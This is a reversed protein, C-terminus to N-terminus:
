DKKKDDKKKKEDKVKFDADITKGDDSPHGSWTEEEKQDSATTQQQQQYQQAAQQYITASAKQLIKTLDNTKDKIKKTDDGTLAEQLEKLAKEVAEKDEKSFKDKLEKLQTFLRRDMISSIFDNTTKREVCVRDSLIFDGCLLMKNQLDIDYQFFYKELDKNERKDMFILVKVM